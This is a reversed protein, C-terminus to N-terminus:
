FSFPFYDLISENYSWRILLAFLAVGVVVYLLFRVTDRDM